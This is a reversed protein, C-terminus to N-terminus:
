VGDGMGTTNIWSWFSSPWLCTTMLSTSAPLTPMQLAGALGQHASCLAAYTPGDCPSQPCHASLPLANRGGLLQEWGLHVVSSAHLQLCGAVHEEEQSKPSIGIPIDTGQFEPQRWSFSTHIHTTWPVAAVVELNSPLLFGPCTVNSLSREWHKREQLQPNALAMVHTTVLKEQLDTLQQQSLNLINSPYFHTHWLLMLSRGQQPHQVGEHLSCVGQVSGPAASLPVNCGPTSVLVLLVLCTLLADASLYHCPNPDHAPKPALSLAHALRYTKQCSETGRKPGDGRSNYM